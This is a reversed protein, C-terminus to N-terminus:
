PTEPRERHRTSALSLMLDWADTAAGALVGAIVAVIWYLYGTEGRLATIGVATLGLDSLLPLALLVLSTSRGLFSRLREEERRSLIAHRISRVADVLGIAVLPLGLGEPTQDPVLFVLAIMVIVIFRGFTRRAGSLVSVAAPDALIDIHLSVAVFLLGVLTASATGAMLYFNSWAAVTSAFGSHM